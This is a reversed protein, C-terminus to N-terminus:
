VEMFRAHRIEVGELFGAIGSDDKEFGDKEFGETEAFKGRQEGDKWPQFLVFEDKGEEGDIRWGGTIDGETVYSQLYRKNGELAETFKQKSGSAIFHRVIGVVGDGDKTISVDDLSVDIHILWEVKMENKLESLLSQNASSPIFGHM